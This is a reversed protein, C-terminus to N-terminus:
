LEIEELSVALMLVGAFKDLDALHWSRTAPTCPIMFVVLTWIHNTSDLHQLIICRVNLLFVRQITRLRSGLKITLAIYTSAIMVRFITWAIDPVFVLSSKTDDEAIRSLLSSPSVCTTYVWGIALMESM